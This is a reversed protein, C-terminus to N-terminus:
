SLDTYAEEMGLKFHTVNLLAVNFDNHNFKMLGKIIITHHQGFRISKDLLLFKETSQEGRFGSPNKCGLCDSIYVLM